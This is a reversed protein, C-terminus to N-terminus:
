DNRQLAARMAAYIAQVQGRVDGTGSTGDRRIPGLRRVSDGVMLAGTLVATAVAMGAVVAMNAARFHRLNRFLLSARSFTAM